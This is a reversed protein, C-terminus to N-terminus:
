ERVPRGFLMRGVATKTTSTVEVSVEQGILGDGEEVVVMTGDDLYGVGQRPGTGPKSIPVQVVQGVTVHPKLHDGLAAPNLIRLGRIEGAKALNTDTTVLTSGSRETLVLLKADVEEVEPVSDDLVSVEQETSRLADLIDLGRRGRRRISQEGADALGQLEDVVFFPIWLRGKVVGSRVLELVRGDIAASSDILFSPEEDDLRRAVLPGRPRLGTLTLLDHSRTAFVRGGIAAVIVVLLATTPWGISSPSFRVIPISLVVGLSLGILMGFGGAFLEPGSLQPLFSGSITDLRRTFLRAGVGGVVYGVGAGLLAGVLRGSATDFTAGLLNGALADGLEYGIATVVLTFLLRIAEVFM